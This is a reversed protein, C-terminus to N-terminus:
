MSVAVFLSIMHYKFIKIHNRGSMRHQERRPAGNQGLFIRMDNQRKSKIHDRQEKEIREEKAKKKRKTSRAKRFM